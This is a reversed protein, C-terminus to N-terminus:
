HTPRSQSPKRYKEALGGSLAENVKKECRKIAKDLSEDEAAQAAAGVVQKRELVASIKELLVLEQAKVKVIWYRDGRDEATDMGPWDKPPAMDLFQDLVEEHMAELKERQDKRMADYGGSEM